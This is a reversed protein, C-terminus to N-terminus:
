KIVRYVEVWKGNDNWIINDMGQFQELFAAPNMGSNGYHICAFQETKM